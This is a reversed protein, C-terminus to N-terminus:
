NRDQRVVVPRQLQQLYEMLQTIATRTVEEADPEGISMRGFEEGWIPMTRTGHAAIIHRGDIIREVLDAPFTGSHRRAMLTLDPVEVRLSGAVPGDGRGQVGHCSACYRLYLRSGSSTDPGGSAPDAAAAGIAWGLLVIFAAHTCRM